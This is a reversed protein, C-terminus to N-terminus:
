QEADAPAKITRLELMAEKGRDTLSWFLAMGGKTTQIYQVDILKLAILQIRVTEFDQDDVRVSSSCASGHVKRYIASGLKFNASTDNPHEQLSPALLAFLNGWSIKVVEQKNSTYRTTETWRIHVSIEDDLGALSSVEPQSAVLTALRSNLKENEKRVHNLDALLEPNSIGGGRVWGQAPYIKITKQLSLAVLGPLEAANRWHKVLRETLVKTRFENLKARIVPDLDSKGVAIEDPAEHVFALVKLDKSLAYDFELETFSIGETSLSGYRGGIIVIYYDCDDIVRKIFQLQEEDAAPFLEMGAPICDMEMLAQIVRQREDKLDAYTSSVFVQYRKDM